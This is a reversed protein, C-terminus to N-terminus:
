DAGDLLAAASQADSASLAPEALAAQGQRRLARWLGLAGLLVLLLPGGWLLATSAKFPPRYRVFDGYRETMYDIVQTESRGAQLQERVRNKLDIALGAHSDALSQNQCVLCRLEAAVQNVRQELAPDAATDTAARAASPTPTPSAAPATADPAAWAGQPGAACLAAALLLGRLGAMRDPKM